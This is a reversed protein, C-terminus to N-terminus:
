SKKEQLKLKMEADSMNPNKRPPNKSLAKKLEESADDGTNYKGDM